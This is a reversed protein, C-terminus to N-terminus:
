PKKALRTRIRSETVIALGGRLRDLLGSELLRRAPAEMARWRQDTLRFVVIGAHSGLPYKRIDGFDLDFTMLLRDERTVTARVIPDKAGGLNEEPLTAVDHHAARLLEAFDAPLNEDLKVRM